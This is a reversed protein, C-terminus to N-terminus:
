VTTVKATRRQHTECPLSWLKRLRQASSSAIRAIQEKWAYTARTPTKPSKKQCVAEFITEDIWGGGTSFILM